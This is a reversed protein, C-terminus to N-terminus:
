RLHRFPVVPRRANVSPSQTDILGGQTADGRETKDIARERNWEIINEGHTTQTQYEVKTSRGTQRWRPTAISIVGIQETSSASMMRPSSEVPQQRM